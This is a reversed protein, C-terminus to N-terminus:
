LVKRAVPVSLGKKEDTKSEILAFDGFCERSLISVPLEVERFRPLSGEATRNRGPWWGMVHRALAYHCEIGDRAVVVM